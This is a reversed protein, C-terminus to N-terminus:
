PHFNATLQSVRPWPAPPEPATAAADAGCCRARGAGDPILSPPSPRSPAFCLRSRGAAGEAGAVAALLRRGQIRSRLLHPQPQKGGGCGRKPQSGVFARGRQSSPRLPSM